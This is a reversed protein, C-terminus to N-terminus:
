GTAPSISLHNPQGTVARAHPAYTEAPARARPPRGRPAATQAVSPRRLPAPRRRGAPAALLPASPPLAYPKGPSARGPRGPPAPRRRGALGHARRGLLPSGAAGGWRHPSPRTPPRSACGTPEAVGSPHPPTQTGRRSARLGARQRYTRDRGAPPTCSARTRAAHAQPRCTICGSVGPGTTTMASQGVCACRGASAAEGASARQMPPLPRSGRAPPGAAAPSPAAAQTMWRAGACAHSGRWARRRQAPPAELSCLSPETRLGPEAQPVLRQWAEVQAHSLCGPAGPMSACVLRPAGGQRPM